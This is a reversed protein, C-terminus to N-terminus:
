VMKKGELTVQTQCIVHFLGLHISALPHTEHLFFTYLFIVHLCTSILIYYFDCPEEHSSTKLLISYSAIFNFYKQTRPNLTQYICIIGLCKSFKPNEHEFHPTFTLIKWKIGHLPKDEGLAMWIMEQEHGAAPLFGVKQLIFYSESIKAVTIKSRFFVSFMKVTLSFYWFM